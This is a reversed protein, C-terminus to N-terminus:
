HRKVSADLLSCFSELVSVTVSLKILSGTVFHIYKLDQQPCKNPRLQRKLHNCTEQVDEFRLHGCHLLFAATFSM